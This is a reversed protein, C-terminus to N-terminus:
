VNICVEPLHYIISREFLNELAKKYFGREQGEPFLRGSVKGSLFFPEDPINLGASYNLNESDTYVGTVSDAYNVFIPVIKRLCDPDVIKHTGGCFIIDAFKREIVQNFFISWPIDNKNVVFKVSPYNQRLIQSEEKVAMIVSPLNM